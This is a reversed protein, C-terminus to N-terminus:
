FKPPRENNQGRKVLNYAFYFIEKFKYASIIKRGENNTKLSLPTKIFRFLEKRYSNSEFNHIIGFKILTKEIKSLKEDLLFVKKVQKLFRDKKEQSELFLLHFLLSYRTANLDVSNPIVTSNLLKELEEDSLNYLYDLEKEKIQNKFLTLRLKDSFTNM